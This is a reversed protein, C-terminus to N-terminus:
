SAVYKQGGHIMGQSAQTQACGLRDSEILIVDYVERLLVNSLWLGAIAGGFLIIDYTYPMGSTEFGARRRKCQERLSPSLREVAAVPGRRNHM